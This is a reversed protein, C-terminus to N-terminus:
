YITSRIMVSQVYSNLGLLEAAICLLSRLKDAKADEELLEALEAKLQKVENSRNNGHSYNEIWKIRKQLVAIRNNNSKSLKGVISVAM